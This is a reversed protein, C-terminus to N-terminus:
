AQQVETIRSKNMIVKCGVVAGAAVLIWLGGNVPLATGGSNSGSTGTAATSNSGSASSSGSGSGGFLGNLWDTLGNWLSTSQTTTQATGAAKAPANALMAIIIVMGALLLKSKKM